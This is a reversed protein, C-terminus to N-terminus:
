KRAPKIKCSMKIAFLATFIRFCLSAPHLLFGISWVRESICLQKKSCLWIGHIYIVVCVPLLTLKHLCVERPAVAPTFGSLLPNKWSERRLETGGLKSLCGPLFGSRNRPPQM